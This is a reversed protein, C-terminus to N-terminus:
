AHQIIDVRQPDALGIRGSADIGVTHVYFYVDERGKAAMTSSPASLILLDGCEGMWDIHRHGHMVIARRGVGLLHRTFWNGNILTTGIREALAHGLAPHEVIHHHLAVIWVARPYQAMAADLAHVEELPILGLANTFSFHTEANSNLAVIGLGDEGTPPRIMPFALNWADDTGKARRRSADDAFERLADAYPALAADLTEGVRAAGVDVINVHAGQMSALMSLTRVQRLRKKPSTPLDLRAPNARDVVNVDHNGPVGVMLGALQPFAELATLLEAFEASTGADTLDGTVVIADLPERRHVEDLARLAAIFSENGRPGSRGSGLRFGFREGVVHIDSLHAVRWRRAFHDPARFGTVLVPQPMTADTVGWLIAAIALYAAAVATANALAPMVLRYPTALESLVASWRTHPWVLWLVLLSLACLLLAAVVKALLRIRAERGETAAASTMRGGLHLLGERFAVYAPQIAMANLSWFSSEVLRFLKRGGFWGIALLLVLFVIAGIGGVGTSSFKGWWMTALVPAIGLLLAPLVVLLVFALALKPLSVEVLLNGAIALLSRSETSSTDTEVDGDRPDVLPARRAASVEVLPPRQEASPGGLPAVARRRAM